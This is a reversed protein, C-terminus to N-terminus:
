LLGQQRGPLQGLAAIVCIRSRNVQQPGQQCLGLTQHIRQQLSELDLRQRQAVCEILVEVAQGLDVPRALDSEVGTDAGKQLPGVLLPGPQAVVVHRDFM